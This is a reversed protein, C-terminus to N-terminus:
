APCVEPPIECNGNGVGDVCTSCTPDWWPCTPLGPEVPGPGPETPNGENGKGPSSVMASNRIADSQMRVVAHAVVPIRGAKILAQKFADSGAANMKSLAWTYFKGLLPMQKSPPIGYTVRIKLLNADLLTQGSANTKPDSACGPVDRPCNLEDLGVNPLVPEGSQLAAKLAPSGYDAFSEPTPSIIEIRLGAADMDKAAKIASEGLEALTRGGGYYPLMAKQFAAHISSISANAVSGARAAEFSAYNVSTKAHYALAAQWIGLVMLLLTPLVIMTEVISAGGQGIRSLPPLRRKM